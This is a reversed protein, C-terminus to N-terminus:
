AAAYAVHPERFLAAIKAPQRQRRRLHSRAQALLEAKHAPPRRRITNSKLDNNLLEDPNLEPSYPPLFVLRIQDARENVWARVKASRHVPHGDLVLYIKAGAHEILRTLFRLFLPVRLNEEVVMFALQGRATIASIVNCAFRRGSVQVTPTQGRKAYTRGVQDDSRMGTEDQFWIQANEAKALAKIAPFLRDRWLAIQEPDRQIARKAPVQPTFGWRKLYKGVAWRSLRVQFRREILEAVSQRTWLAFPLRLQRPEKGIVTRAISAEQWPTLAKRSSVRVGRRASRCAAVGGLAAKKMWGCVTAPRVQLARAVAAQRMGGRVMAVGRARLEDQTRQSLRRTDTVNM